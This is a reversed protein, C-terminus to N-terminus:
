IGGDKFKFSIRNSFNVYLHNYYLANIHWIYVTYLGFTSILFDGFDRSFTKHLIYCKIEYVIAGSLPPHPAVGILSFLTFLSMLCSLVHNTWLITFVKIHSSQLHCLMNYMSHFHLCFSLKPCSLLPDKFWTEDVTRWLQLQSGRFCRGPKICCSEALRVMVRLGGDCRILSLTTVTNLFFWSM